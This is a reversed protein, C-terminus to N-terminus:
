FRYFFGTFLGMSFPHPIGTTQYGLSSLNYRIMPELNFSLSGSLNYAMGVGMSSSITFPSVGETYGTPIKEGTLSLAYVSNGVLLSYSVGGLLNIDIGRDILKYRVMLPMELYGFNQVLNSGAFPLESKVPDFIDKSYPTSVRNGAKDYLYLDSNTSVIRGSTTSITMEGSGKTAVYPAFGSYTSVNDIVQGMSSYYLGTSVSLRKSFTFSVSVGGSYTVQMQESEIMSRYDPDTLNGQRMVYSPNFGAGILWRETKGPEVASLETEGAFTDFIAARGATLPFPLEPLTQEGPFEMSEGDSMEFTMNVPSIIDIATQRLDSLVAQTVKEPEEYLTAMAMSQSPADNGAIVPERSILGQPRSDQNLTLTGPNVDYQILDTVLWLSSAMAILVAVTAAATLLVRRRARGAAIPAISDWVMPPPLVELDQLGNRFLIDIHVGKDQM